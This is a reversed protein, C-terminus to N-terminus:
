PIAHAIEPNVVRSAIAFMAAARKDRFDRYTNVDFSMRSPDSAYEDVVLHPRLDVGAAMLRPFYSAPLEARKRINDIAGVFRYNGLHNIETSSLSLRNRLLSQPYIHDVHPANDKSRFDSPSRHFESAYILNLLMLRLRSDSAHVQRLEVDRASTFHLKIAALPFARSGAEKLRRHLADLTRDTYAGFWNFMQSKYYYGRMLVRDQPDPKPHLYLYDFLPNFSSYSRIVKDGMLCLESLVFDRLEQFAAEIRPWNNEIDSSFAEAEADSMEEPKLIAGRDLAVALCKIVFDKDFTFRKDNLMEVVEEINAEIDAWGEKMAAFMLDSASLKTGGSNVRVFIDRIKSYSYTNAVGDLEEVWFHKEERLLSVLQGINRRVLRQRDKQAQTDAKDIGCVDLAENIEDSLEEANKPSHKGTLDRIRLFPLPLPEASLRIDYFLGDDLRINGTTTDIYAERPDIGTEGVIQGSFFAYLTQLRQQGDLVLVKEVGLQSKSGDYLLHLESDWNISDMFKRVKIADKTRWFLMTQIPYNLMLSDLLKRMQDEDWVFPRQIHPLFLQRNIDEILRFLSRPKYTM